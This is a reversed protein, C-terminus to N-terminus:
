CAIVQVSLYLEVITWMLDVTTAGVAVEKSAEIGVLGSGDVGRVITSVEGGGEVERGGSVTKNATVKEAMEM